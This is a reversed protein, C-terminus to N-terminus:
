VMRNSLASVPKYLVLLFAISSVCQAVFFPIGSVVTPLFLSFKFLVNIVPTELWFAISFVFSTLVLAFIGRDKKSVIFSMVALLPFHFIYQVLVTPYFGYIVTDVLCFVIVAPLSVPLGFFASTLIILPSVIEVNPIFSLAYKGGVLLAALLGSYAISKATFIKKNKDKVM